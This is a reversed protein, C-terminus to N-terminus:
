GPGEGVSKIVLTMDCEMIILKVDCRTSCQECIVIVSEADVLIHEAVPVRRKRCSPCRVYIVDM